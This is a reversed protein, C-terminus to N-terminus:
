LMSNPSPPVSQPGIAPHSTPLNLLVLIRRTKNVTPVVIALPNIAITLLYNSKFSFPLNLGLVSM